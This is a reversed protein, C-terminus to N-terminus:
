RKRIAGLYHTCFLPIKELLYCGLYSYPALRRALPPILTARQLELRCDPFLHAIESRRVGRADRNWPNNVHYDYWLILGDSKVVRLMEAAAHRKLDADLISTFVTSQFVLDFSGDPFPLRAASACEIRVGPACLRRAVAVRDALLDVGILNEPRAGWKVLERLWYGTGCGVELINKSELDAMGCRQLFALMRRECQQMIFLHGGQFWSYRGGETRKGYVARIRGEELRVSDLPQIMKLAQTEDPSDYEQM